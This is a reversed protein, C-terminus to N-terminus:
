GEVINDCWKGGSEVVKIYNNEVKKYFGEIILLFISVDICILFNTRFIHFVHNKVM